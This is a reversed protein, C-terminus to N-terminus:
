KNLHVILCASSNINFKSCFSYDNLTERAYAATVDNYNLNVLMNVLIHHFQKYSGCLALSCSSYIINQIIKHIHYM